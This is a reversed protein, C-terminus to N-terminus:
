RRSGMGNHRREESVCVIVFAAASNLLLPSLFILCSTQQDNWFCLEYIPRQDAVWCSLVDRETSLFRRWHLLTWPCQQSSLLIILPNISVSEYAGSGKWPNHKILTFCDIGYADPKSLQTTVPIIIASRFLLSKLMFCSTLCTLSVCCHSVYCCDWYVVSWCMSLYEATKNILILTHSM